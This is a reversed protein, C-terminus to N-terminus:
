TVSPWDHCSPPPFNAMVLVKLNVVSDLRGDTQGTIKRIVESVQGYPFSYLLRLISRM